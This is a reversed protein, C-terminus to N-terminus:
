VAEEFTNLLTKNNNAYSKIAKGYNSIKISGDNDEEVKTNANIDHSAYNKECYEMYEKYSVNKDNNVDNSINFKNTNASNSDAQKLKPGINPILKSIYNIAEDEAKMTRYSAAMQSMKIMSKTSIGKSKCYDRYEDLTVVGDEDSDMEPMYMPEGKKAYEATQNKTDNVNNTRNQINANNLLISQIDLSNNSIASVDM